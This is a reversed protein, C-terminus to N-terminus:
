FFYRKRWKRFNIGGLAGGAAATRPKSLKYKRDKVMQLNPFHKGGFNVRMSAVPMNATISINYFLYEMNELFFIIFM